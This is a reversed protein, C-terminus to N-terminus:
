KRDWKKIFDDVFSNTTNSTFKAKGEKLYDVAQQIVNLLHPVSNMAACAYAADDEVAGVYKQYKPQVESVTLWRCFPGRIEGKFKYTDYWAVVSTSKEYLEKLKVIDLEINPLDRQSM